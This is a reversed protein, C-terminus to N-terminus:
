RVHIHWLKAERALRKRTSSHEAVVHSRAYVRNRALGEGGGSGGSEGCVGNDQLM